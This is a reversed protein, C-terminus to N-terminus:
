SGKAQQRILARDLFNLLRVSWEDPHTYLGQTHSTNSMIWLESSDPAMSHLHAMLTM